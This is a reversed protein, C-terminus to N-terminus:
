PSGHELVYYNDWEGQNELVFGHRLYFDNSRSQKLAGVRLTKKQAHAESIVQMLVQAGLGLGQATPDIYLHDLLLHDEVPRLVVFGVRRGEWLVERTSAPDFNELFRARVRLPDFRGIAELSPQMARARLEALAAGEEACVQRLTLSSPNTVANVSGTMLLM